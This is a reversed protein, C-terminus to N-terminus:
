YYKIILVNSPLIGSLTPKSQNMILGYKENNVYNTHICINNKFVPRRAIKLRLM